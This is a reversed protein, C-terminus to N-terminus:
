SKAALTSETNIQVGEVVPIQDPPPVELPRLGTFIHDHPLSLLLLTEELMMLSGAIEPVVVATAGAERLKVDNEPRQARAVIVVEAAMQRARHVVARTAGFDPLAVVVLQASQPHAQHLISEYSADGYIAIYNRERLEQVVHLDQEIVVVQLGAQRLGRSVRRGVRGYGIVIAHNELNTPMEGDPAKRDTLRQWLARRGLVKDVRPAIWFALPTLLITLLASTLILNYLTAPLAGSNRGMHALVFNFEGISIMGLTTFALTKGGVRFPLLALGTCLVKLTIIFLALGVVALWNNVIFYIDIMMGVSVFFLTAFIDRMPVVEAVVRHDFETETLMLGAMFAGLAPSLGLWASTSATGLALVVATLIFLEPSHLEEIRRMFRPVVRSGLFLTAGIFAASKLTMLAIDRGITEGGASLKPLLLMLVVVALDQVILMSLLLRGHNSGAEGRDMLNKLIVMTSSVAITGGFFVSQILSWKLLLGLATGGAIIGLMQLSTGVIAAGKVRALEKLSFEIGLAFMLFIVGIEALGALQERDGVFGPTFPGICVGALLYGIIPSQRLRHAFLGGILAVTIAVTLQLIVAQEHGM